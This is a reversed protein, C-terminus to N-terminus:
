EASLESYIFVDDFKHISPSPKAEFRYPILLMFKSFSRISFNFNITEYFTAMATMALSRGAM